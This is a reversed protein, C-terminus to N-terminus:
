SLRKELLYELRDESIFKLPKPFVLLRPTLITRNKEAFNEIIEKKRLQSRYEDQILKVKEKMREISRNLRDRRLTATLITHDGGFKYNRTQNKTQPCEISTLDDIYSEETESPDKTTKKTLQQYFRYSNHNSQNTEILISRTTSPAIIPCKVEELSKQQTMLMAKKYQHRATKYQQHSGKALDSLGSSQHHGTLNQLSNDFSRDISTTGGWVAGLGSYVTTQNANRQRRKFPLLNLNHDVTAFMLNAPSAHFQSILNDRSASISSVDLSTM